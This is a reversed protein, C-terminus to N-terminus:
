KKLYREKLINMHHVAHGCTAYGISIVTANGMSTNGSNLLTADSFSKYLTLSASRVSDLEDLLDKLNRNSLEATAAYHNEEYPLPQQPDKRAFRLARYSFIRETDILHSIIQKITWKGEAYAYNEKDSPISAILEKLERWNQTFASILDDGAALPIYNEYYAPYTGKQPRM